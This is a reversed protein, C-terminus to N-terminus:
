SYSVHNARVKRDTPRGVKASVRPATTPDDSNHFVRKEAEASFLPGRDTLVIGWCSGRGASPKMESPNSQSWRIARWARPDLM